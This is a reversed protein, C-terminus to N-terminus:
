AVCNSSRQLGELVDALYVRLAEDHVRESDGASDAATLAATGAVAGVPAAAPLLLPTDSLEAICAHQTRGAADGLMHPLAGHQLLETEEDEGGASARVWSRGVSGMVGRQVLVARTTLFHARSDMVSPAEAPVTGDRVFQERAAHTQDYYLLSLQARMGGLLPMVEAVTAARRSRLVQEVVYARDEAALFYRRRDAWLLLQDAWVTRLPLRLEEVAFRYVSLLEPAEMRLYLKLLRSVIPATVPVKAAEMRSLVEAARQAPNMSNHADQLLCSYYFEDTCRLLQADRAPQLYDQEFRPVQCKSLANLSTQLLYELARREAAVGGAGGGDSVEVSALRELAQRHAALVVDVARVAGASILLMTWTHMRVQTVANAALLGRALRVVHSNQKCAQLMALLRHLVLETVTYDGTVTPAAGTATNPASSAATLPSTNPAPRPPPPAPPPPAVPATGRPLTATAANLPATAAEHTREAPDARGCAMFAEVAGGGGEELPACGLLRCAEGFYQLAEPVLQGTACTDILAAYVVQVEDTNYALVPAPLAEAPGQRLTWSLPQPGWLLHVEKCMFFFAFEGDDGVTAYRVCHLAERLLDSSQRQSVTPPARVPPSSTAAAAAVAVAAERRVSAVQRCADLIALADALAQAGSGQMAASPTAETCKFFEVLCLARWLCRLLSLETAAERPTRVALTTLVAEASAVAGAAAAATADAHRGAVSNLPMLLQTVCYSAIRLLEDSRQLAYASDILHSSVLVVSDMALNASGVSVNGAASATGSGGPGSGSGPGAAASTESVATTAATDSRAPAAQVARLALAAAPMYERAAHYLELGVEHLSAVHALHLYEQVTRVSASVLRAPKMLERLHAYLVPRQPHAFNARSFRHVRQVLDENSALSLERALAPSVTSDMVFGAGRRRPAGDSAAEAVASGLAAPDSTVRVVAPM